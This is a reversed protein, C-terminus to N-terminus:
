YGRCAGRLEEFEEAGLAARLRTAIELCARYTAEAKRSDTDFGLYSAWTEFDPADIADTDVCLSALVDAFRPLIAQDKPGRGHFRAPYGTECERNVRQDREYGSRTDGPRYKYGPCHAIGAGYDTTLFARGNRHLTVRWNLSRHREGANRSQSWPVFEATMTLGLEAAKAEISEATTTESM